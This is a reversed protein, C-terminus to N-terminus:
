QCWQQGVILDVYCTAVRDGLSKSFPFPLLGYIVLDKFTFCRQLPLPVQERWSDLSSQRPGCDPCNINEIVQNVQLPDEGWTRGCFHGVLSGDHRGVLLLFIFRQLFNNIHRRQVALIKRSGPVRPKHRQRDILTSGHVAPIIGGLRPCADFM